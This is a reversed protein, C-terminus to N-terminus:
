RAITVSAKPVMMRMRILSTTSTVLPGSPMLSDVGVKKSQRSRDSVMGSKSM